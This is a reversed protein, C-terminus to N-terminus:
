PFDNRNTNREPKKKEYTRTECNKGLIKTVCSIKM